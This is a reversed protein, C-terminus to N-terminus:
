ELEKSLEKLLKENNELEARVQEEGQWKYDKYSFWAGAKKILKQEIANFLVDTVESLGSDFYIRFFATKFPAALKNKAIKAKVKNGIVEEGRKIRGVARVDIRISSYFKLARGGPTTSKPGYGMTHINERLQNIFVICTNTKSAIGTLKRLSKSILRAQLGINVDSMEGELEAQPILSAVSDIVILAIEESKVYMDAIELAQEGYDPQVITIKSVDIGMKEAFEYNFAHEADIYVTKLGKLIAQKITYLAVTSKGGSEAGYLEVIKGRPMGKIGLANDLTRVGTSIVDVKLVEDKNNRVVGKGFKKEIQKYVEDLKSM